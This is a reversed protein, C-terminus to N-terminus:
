SAGKTESSPAAAVELARVFDDPADVTVYFTREGTLSLVLADGRRTVLAARKFFRLSGRYGWGGSKLPSLPECKAALIEGSTFRQRVLGGPGYLVALSRGHSEQVVRVDVRLSVVFLVGILIFVAIVVGLALAPMSRNHSTDVFIVAVNALLSAVLGLTIAPNATRLRQELVISAGGM